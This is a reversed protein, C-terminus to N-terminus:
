RGNSGGHIYIPNKGKDREVSRGDEALKRSKIDKIHGVTPQLGGRLTVKQIFAPVSPVKSQWEDYCAPCLYMNKSGDNPASCTDCIGSCYPSLSGKQQDVRGMIAMNICSGKEISCLVLKM